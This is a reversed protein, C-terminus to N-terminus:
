FGFTLTFGGYFRNDQNGDNADELDGFPVSYNINPSFSCNETLPITLGVGIAADGGDGGIFLEDNYGVHGSLDVTTAREGLPLSHILELVVYDGDGGGSDEDGYDHYWTLNPSLLMDIGAGVYFEKTAIDASPFDYYTHGVSLSFKDRGYTYDVTYDVEDSNLSDDSDIDFSGWLSATFGHASIYIGQQMVTDDDLTFGRWVYDSNIAIDASVGIPSDKLVGETEEQAYANAAKIGVGLYCVTLLIGLKRRKCM